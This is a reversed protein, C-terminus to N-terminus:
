EFRKLAILALATAIFPDDERMWAIPNEWSGDEKQLSVLEQCVANCRDSLRLDQTEKWVGSLAAAHYFYLGALPSVIEDPEVPQVPISPRDQMLLAKLAAQVDGSEEAFGLKRLAVIGDCTATAYSYPQLEGKENQFWGAKNLHDDPRPLFWFGGDPRFQSNRCRNLFSLAEERVEPTISNTQSLAKLVTVTVSLNAPNSEATAPDPEVGWGGRGVANEPWGNAPVQQAKLLRDILVKRGAKPFTSIRDSIMLLFAAGYIPSDVRESPPTILLSHFGRRIAEDVEGQIGRSESSTPERLAELILGTNGVGSRMVGYTESRWRGDEGQQTLLWRTAKRIAEDRPSLEDAQVPSFLSCVILVFLCFFIRM